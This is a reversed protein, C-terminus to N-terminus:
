EALEACVTYEPFRVVFRAGDTWHSDLALSAGRKELMAQSIALGLGSGTGVDKTTFFPEFIRHRLERPIGPGNDSVSLTIAGDESTRTAVVIRAGDNNGLAQIANWLLNTLVIEIIGCSGAVVMDGPGLDMRLEIRLRQLRCSIFSEVVDQVVQNIDCVDQECKDTRAFNLLNSGIRSCRQAEDRIVGIYHARRQPDDGKTGLLQSYGLLNGLPTNLEHAVGAAVQGMAVFKERRAVAQQLQRYDTIDQIIIVADMDAEHQTLSALNLSLWREQGDIEVKLEQNTVTMKRLFIDRLLNRNLEDLNLVDFLNKGILQEARKGLLEFSHRFISLITLNDDVNILMGPLSQLIANMRNREDLVRNQCEEVTVFMSRLITVMENYDRVLTAVVGHGQTPLALPELIGEKANVINNHLQEILRMQCRQQCLWDLMAIM